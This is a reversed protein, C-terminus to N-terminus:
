EERDPKEYLDGRANYRDYNRIPRREDNGSDDRRTMHYGRGRQMSPAERLANLDESIEVREQRM